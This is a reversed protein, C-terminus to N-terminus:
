IEFRIRIAQWMCESLNSDWCFVDSVDCKNSENWLNFMLKTVARTYGTQWGENLGDPIIMDDSFSFLRDKRLYMDDNLAMLYALSKHYVDTSSMLSLVENYRVKHINDYFIM